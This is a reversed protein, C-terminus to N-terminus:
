SAARGRAIQKRDWQKLENLSWLKRRNVVMPRPFDLAPDKTWRDITRTTTDYRTAVANTGLKQDDDGAAAELRALRQLIQQTNNM